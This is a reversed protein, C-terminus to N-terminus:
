NLSAYELSSDGGVKELEKFKTEAEEVRLDMRIRFSWKNAIIHTCEILLAERRYNKTACDASLV